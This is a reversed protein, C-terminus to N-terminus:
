GLPANHLFNMRMKYLFLPTLEDSLNKIDYSTHLKNVLMGRLSVISIATLKINSFLGSMLIVLSSSLTNNSNAVEPVYM